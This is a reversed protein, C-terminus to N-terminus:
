GLPQDIKAFQAKEEGKLRLRQGIKALNPRQLVLHVVLLLGIIAYLGNGTNSFSVMAFLAAGEILAYKMISATQYRGLKEKLGIEQSLVRTMRKFLFEGLLAGFLGVATVLALPIDMTPSLFLTRGEAQFYFLVGMILPTATIVVHLFSLTKIYQAVSPAQNRKKM